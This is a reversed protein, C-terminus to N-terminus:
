EVCKNCRNVIITASSAPQPAVVQMSDTAPTALQPWARTSTVRQQWPGKCPTALNRCTCAAVRVLSRSCTSTDSVLATARLLSRWFPRHRCLRCM